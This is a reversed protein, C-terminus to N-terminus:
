YALWSYVHFELYCVRLNGSADALLGPTEGTEGTEDDGDDCGLRQTTRLSSRNRGNRWTWPTWPAGITGRPAHRASGLQSCCYEISLFSLITNESSICFLNIPVCDNSIEHIYHVWTNFLISYYPHHTIIRIHMLIYLLICHQNRIRQLDIM